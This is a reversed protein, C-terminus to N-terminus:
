DELNEIWLLHPALTTGALANFFNRDATVMRADTAIALSLYLSDYITQRYQTAIHWATNLLGALPKITLASQRFDHLLEGGTPLDLEGLRCKKWIINGVEALILEPALLDNGDGLLRLAHMSHIEPVYWKIAVSADVVYRM